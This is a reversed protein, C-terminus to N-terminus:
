FNSFITKVMNSNYLDEPSVVKEKLNITAGYRRKIENRVTRGSLDFDSFTKPTCLDYGAAKYIKWVIESCYMKRDSWEFKIDYNKGLQKKPLEKLETIFFKACYKISQQNFKTILQIM